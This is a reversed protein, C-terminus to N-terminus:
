VSPSVCLRQLSSLLGNEEPAFIPVQTFKEHETPPETDLEAEEKGAVSNLIRRRDEEQTAEAKAIDISFGREMLALPFDKTSELDPHGEAILCPKGAHVTAIDLKLQKGTRQLLCISEEFCSGVFPPHAAAAHVSDSQAGGSASSRCGVLTSCWCCLKLAVAFPSHLMRFVTLPAGTCMQMALCFSSQMPDKTIATGIEHQNNAAHPLCTLVAAEAMCSAGYACVWYLASGGLGRAEAHVASEHHEVASIFDLVPEGWRFFIIHCM